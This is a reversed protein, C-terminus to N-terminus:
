RRAVSLVIEIESMSPHPKQGQTRGRALAHSRLWRTDRTELYQGRSEQRIALASVIRRFLRRTSEIWPEVESHAVLAFALDQRTAGRAARRLAFYALREPGPQL